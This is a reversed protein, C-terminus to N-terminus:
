AAGGNKERLKAEAARTYEPLTPHKGHLEWMEDDTLGVWPKPAVPWPKGDHYTKVPVPQPTPPTTYISGWQGPENSGTCSFNHDSAKPCRKNGCESCLIMRDLMVGGSAKFCSHCCYRKAVPEQVPAPQAAPPTTYLAVEHRNDPESWYRLSSMAGNEDVDMWAVPEQVAKCKDCDHNVCGIKPEAMNGFNTEPVDQKPQADQALLAKIDKLVRGIIEEDYDELGTAPYLVDRIRELEARQQENM